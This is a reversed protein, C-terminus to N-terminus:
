RPIALIHLLEISPDQGFDLIKTSPELSPLAEFGGEVPRLPCSNRRYGERACAGDKHLLRFRYM